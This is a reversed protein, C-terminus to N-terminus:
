GQMRTTEAFVRASVVRISKKGGGKKPFHLLRDRFCTAFPFFVEIFSM